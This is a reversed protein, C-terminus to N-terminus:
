KIRCIIDLYTQAPKVMLFDACEAVDLEAECFSGYFSSAYKVAYSLVPIETFGVHYLGWRIAQVMGDMM